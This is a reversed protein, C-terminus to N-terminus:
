DRWRGAASRLAADRVAHGEEDEAAWERYAEVHEREDKLREAAEVFAELTARFLASQNDRGELNRSRRRFATLLATIEDRGRDEDLISEWVDFANRVRPALDRQARFTYSKDSTSM